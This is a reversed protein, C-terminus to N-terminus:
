ENCPLKSAKEVCKPCSGVTQRRKGCHNCKVNFRKAKDGKFAGTGSKSGGKAEKNTCLTAWHGKEKCM